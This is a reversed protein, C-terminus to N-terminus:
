MFRVTSAFLIQTTCRRLCQRSLVFCARTLIANVLRIMMFITGIITCTYEDSRVAETKLDALFAPDFLVSFLEKIAVPQGSLTGEYVQGAGGAALLKGIKIAEFPISYATDEVLTIIRKASQARRLDTKKKQKLFFVVLVIAVIVM